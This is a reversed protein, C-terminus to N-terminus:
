SRLLSSIIKALMSAELQVQLLPNHRNVTNRFGDFAAPHHLEGGQNHHAVAGANHAKADALGSLNRVSDALADLVGLLVENFIERFPVVM